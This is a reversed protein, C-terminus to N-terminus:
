HSESICSTYCAKNRGRNRSICTNRPISRYKRTYPIFGDEDEPDMCDKLVEEVEADSLKEGSECNYM